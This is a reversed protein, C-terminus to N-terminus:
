HLSWLPLPLCETKEPSGSRQRMDGTNAVYGYTIFISRHKFNMQLKFPLWGLCAAEYLGANMSIGACFLHACHMNIPVILLWRSKCHCKHSLIQCRRKYRNFTVIQIGMSQWSLICPIVFSGSPPLRNRDTFKELLEKIQWVVKLHKGLRLVTWKSIAGLYM